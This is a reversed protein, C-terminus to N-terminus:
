WSKIRMKIWLFMIGVVDPIWTTCCRTVTIFCKQSNYFVEINSDCWILWPIAHFPWQFFWQHLHRNGYLLHYFKLMPSANLISVYINEKKQEYKAWLVLKFCLINRCYDKWDCFCSKFWWPSITVLVRWGEVDM